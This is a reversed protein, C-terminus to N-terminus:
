MEVGSKKIFWNLMLNGDVELNGIKLNQSYDMERMKYGEITGRWVAMQSNSKRCFMGAYSFCSLCHMHLM